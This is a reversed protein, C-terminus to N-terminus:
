MGHHEMPVIKLKYGMPVLLKLISDVRPSHSARELRAILPQQVHCLEALQAQTLGKEERIHIITRILEKQLEIAAKDEETLDFTQRVEKWTKEM